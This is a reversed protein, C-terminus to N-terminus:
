ATNGSTKSWAAAASKVANTEADGSSGIMITLKAPGSAQTKAAGGFSSGGGGCASLVLAGTACLALAVAGHRTKSTRM